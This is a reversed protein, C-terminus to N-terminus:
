EADDKEGALTLTPLAHKITLVRNFIARAEDPLTEYAKVNLKPQWDILDGVNLDPFEKGIEAMAGLVADGKGLTYSLKQVSKFDGNTNTGLRPSPFLDVILLVRLKAELAKWFKLNRSAVKWLTALLRIERQTNIM